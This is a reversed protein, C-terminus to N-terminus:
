KVRAGTAKNLVCHPLIPMCNAGIGDHLTQGAVLCMFTKSNKIHVSNNNRLLGCHLQQHVLYARNRKPHPRFRMIENKSESAPEGDM